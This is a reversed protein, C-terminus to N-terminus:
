WGAPHVEVFGAPSSIRTASWRDSGNATTQAATDFWLGAIRM